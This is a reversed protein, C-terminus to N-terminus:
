ADDLEKIIQTLRVELESARWYQDSWDPGFIRELHRADPESAFQEIRSQVRLLLPELVRSKLFAKNRPTM